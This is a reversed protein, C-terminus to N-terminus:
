EYHHLTISRVVVSRIAKGQLARDASGPQSAAPRKPTSEEVAREISLLILQRTSCGKRTAAEHLRSEQPRGRPPPPASRPAPRHQHSDFGHKCYLDLRARPWISEQWILRM